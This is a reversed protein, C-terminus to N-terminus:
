FRRDIVKRVTRTGDGFLSLRESSIKLAGARPGESTFKKLEGIALPLLFNTFTSEDSPARVRSDWRFSSITSRKNRKVIIEVFALYTASSLRPRNTRTSDRYAEPSSALSSRSLAATFGPSCLRYGYSSEYETGSLRYALSCEPARPPSYTVDVIRADSEFRRDTRSPLTSAHEERHSYVPSLPLPHRLYLTVLAPWGVPSSTSRDGKRRARPWRGGGAGRPARM